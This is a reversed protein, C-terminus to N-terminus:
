TAPVSHAYKVIPILYATTIGDTVLNLNRTSYFSWKNNTCALLLLLAGKLWYSLRACCPALIIQPLGVSELAMGESLKSMTYSLLPLSRSAHLGSISVKLTLIEAFYLVANSVELLLGICEVFCFM